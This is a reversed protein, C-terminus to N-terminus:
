GAAATHLQTGDPLQFSVGAPCPSQMEGDATVRYVVQGDQEMEACVLLGSDVSVWYRETRDPESLSVEALICPLTGFLDYGASVIDGPSLELVTEYTPVRQSLDAGQPGAPATEYSRSGDYWYYLTGEGTLDHRVAGSPLVQRCHSWGGDVWAQVPTSSAGDEGWFTEVTLERYYSDPRSLTAIVGQVTKPTVEVKQYGGGSPEEGGPQSGSAASAAPLTVSPTNLAFLNRGFSTFMAAVILLIVAATIYTRNKPEV